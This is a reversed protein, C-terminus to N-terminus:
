YIVQWVPGDSQEECSIIRHQHLWDLEILLDAPALKSLQSLEALSASGFHHLTDVIYRARPPLMEWPTTQNKTLPNGTLVGTLSLFVEGIMLGKQNIEFLHIEKSHQSGRVKLVSLACSMRGLLEVYRLLIVNDAIFSVGYESLQFDGFLDPIENTLIATIGNMKFDNVLSYIYDKFRVKDPTAIEIDKISDFLVRKAGVRAIVTRVASAHIDPQIEVPSHYLHVLLGQDELAQLDWGFSLAIERLQVPNEQFTVIVGPEGLAAGATIFHMGLLTKGTGAGGAVMTATGYPLGGCLMEDLKAIGTSVHTTKATYSFSDPTKIRPYVTLGTFDITFPHMGTFYNEGRMKLVDIYRQYHLGHLHNHLRTIGDAIAFIPETEIELATYEGVFFATVGWTTLRVSLDYGFKRVEVHDKAMDHIARFSDVAVIAPKHEQVHKLIVSIADEMGRQRIVEGIDLYIVQTGVKSPDFFTFKQLYHLIKVSPESLTTLYLVKRTPSANQYIIQQVFITKGSGPPGAIINISLEPFGGKLIEDLGPIGTTLKGLPKRGIKGSSM